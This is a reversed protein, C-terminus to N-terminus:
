KKQTVMRLQIKYSELEMEKARLVEAHTEARREAEEQAARLEDLAATAQHEKEKAATLQKHLEKTSENRAAMLTRFLKSFDNTIRNMDDTAEKLLAPSTYHLFPDTAFRHQVSLHLWAGTEFALRECREIIDHSLRLFRASIEKRGEAKERLAKNRLISLKKSGRWAGLVEGFVPNKKTVRSRAKKGATQTPAPSPTRTLTSRTPTEIADSSPAVDSHAPSSNPLPSSGEAQSNFPPWQQGAPQQQQPFSYANPYYHTRQTSPTQPVLLGQYDPRSPFSYFPNQNM